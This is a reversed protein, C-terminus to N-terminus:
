KRIGIPWVMKSQATCGAAKMGNYRTQVNALADNKQRELIRAQSNYAFTKVYDNFEKEKMKYAVVDNSADKEWTALNQPTCNALSGTPVVVTMM